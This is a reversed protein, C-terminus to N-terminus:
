SEALLDLALLRGLRRRDWLGVLGLSLAFIRFGAAERREFLANVAQLTLEILAMGLAVIQSSLELALSLSHVDELGLLLRRRLRRGDIVGLALRVVHVERLRRPKTNGHEGFANASRQLMQRVRRLSVCENQHATDCGAVM